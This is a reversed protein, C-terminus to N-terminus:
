GNLAVKVKSNNRKRRACNERHCESCTHGSWQKRTEPDVWKQDKKNPFRGDLVRVKTEGCCSCKIISKEVIETM